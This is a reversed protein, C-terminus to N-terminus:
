SNKRADKYGPQIAESIKGLVELQVQFPLESEIDEYTLETLSEGDVPVLLKFYEVVRNEMKMSTQVLDKTSRGDVIVDGDIIEVGEAPEDKSFISIAKQYRQEFVAPDIEECRKSIAELEKTLPVRVRFTQGQLEFTKVRLQDINGFASSLKSM